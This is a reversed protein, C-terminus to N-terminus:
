MGPLFGQGLSLIFITLLMALGAFLGGFSWLKLTDQESIRNFRSVAWFGSDNPLSLGVAGACTALAVLAPAVNTKAIMEVVIAATTLMAVTGSGQAARIIQSLIFALLIISINFSSLTEALYYGIGTESIIRGFAGGAGTILLILGVQDAAEMLCDSIPKEIYRRLSIMAYFVGLLLAINKDGIFAIFKQLTTGQALWMGGFSGILILAIPLILVSFAAASSPVNVKGNSLSVATTDTAHLEGASVMANETSEDYEEGEVEEMVFVRGKKEDRRVVFYAWALGALSGVLGVILAYIFFIGIDLGYIEAVALPAPTPIVVSFAASTAVAIGGVYILQSIGTKKSLARIMPAFMVYVVDGFVPIGTVFGSMTIALPSNKEGFQRIMANAMVEIGGSEYLFKGLMVGLGTVIGIGGLTGGFGGSIHGGIKELPMRVLFGTILATLLLSLFANLKFKIISVLLIAISLLFIVILMPGTVM